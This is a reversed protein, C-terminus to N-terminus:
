TFDKDYVNTLFCTIPENTESHKQSKDPLTDICTLDTNVDYKRVNECDTIELYNNIRKNDDKLNQKESVLTFNDKSFDNGNSNFPPTPIANEIDLSVEMVTEYQALITTSHFDLSTTPMPTLIISNILQSPHQQNQPFRSRLSSPFQIIQAQSPLVNTQSTLHLILDADSSASSLFKTEIQRICPPLDNATQMDGTCYTVASSFDCSCTYDLASTSPLGAPFGPGNEIIKDFTVKFSKVSLVPSNTWQITDFEQDKNSHEGLHKNLFRHNRKLIYSTSGEISPDNSLSTTLPLTSSTCKESSELVNMTRKNAKNKCKFICCDITCVILVSILAVSLALGAVAFAIKGTGLYKDNEGFKELKNVSSLSPSFISGHNRSNNNLSNNSWLSFSTNKMSIKLIGFGPSFNQRFGVNQDLYILRSRIATGCLNDEMKIIFSDNATSLNTKEYYVRKEALQQYSFYQVPITDVYIRGYKPPERINFYMLQYYHNKQYYSQESPEVKIMSTDLWLKTENQLLSFHISNNFTLNGFILKFELSGTLHNVSLNPYEKQYVEFVVSDRLVEQKNDKNKFVVAHNAYYRLRKLNIDYQTIKHITECEPMLADHEQNFSNYSYYLKGYKPLMKFHIYIFQPQIFAHDVFLHENTITVYSNTKVVIINESTRRLNNHMSRPTPNILRLSTSIRPLIQIPFIVPQEYDTLSRKM